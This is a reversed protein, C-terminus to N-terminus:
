DNRVCQWFFWGKPVPPGPRLFLYAIGVDGFNPGQAVHTRGESRKADPSVWSVEVVAPVLFSYTSDLQGVFRWGASPERKPLVKFGHPVGGLRTSWTVRSRIGEALSQYEAEDFFAPAPSDPLGDDRELWGVVRTEHEVAPHDAPLASLESRLDEPEVVFCANAGSGGEWTLCRGPDHNCQFVFLVRGDRGLDLRVPHHLFQALMSQSKGCGRCRPWLDAPLVSPIGGFQGGAVNLQFSLQSGCAQSSTGANAQSSYYSRNGAVSSALLPRNNALAPTDSFM